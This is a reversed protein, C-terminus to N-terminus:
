DNRVIRLRAAPRGDGKGGGKIVERRVGISPGELSPLSRQLFGPDAHEAESCRACAPFVRRNRLGIKPGLWKIDSKLSVLPGGCILCEPECEVIVEAILDGSAESSLAARSVRPQGERRTLWSLSSGHEPNPLEMLIAWPQDSARALLSLAPLTTDKWHSSWHDHASSPLYKEFARAASGARDFVQAFVSDMGVHKTFADLKGWRFGKSNSGLVTHQLDRLASSDFAAMSEALMRHPLAADILHGIRDHVDFAALHGIGLTEAIQLAAGLKHSMGALLHEQHLAPAVLDVFAAHRGLSAAAMVAAEDMGFRGGGFPAMTKAWREQHALVGGLSFVDVVRQRQEALESAAALGGFRALDVEGNAKELATRDREDAGLEGIYKAIETTM